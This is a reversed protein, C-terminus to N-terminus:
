AVKATILGDRFSRLLGPPRSLTYVRHFGGHRLLSALSVLVVHLRNPNTHDSTQRELAAFRIAILDSKPISDFLKRANATDSEQKSQCLPTMVRMNAYRIM